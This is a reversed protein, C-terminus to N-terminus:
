QSVLLGEVRLCPVNVTHCELLICCQLCTSVKSGQEVELSQSFIRDELNVEVGVEVGAQVRQGALKM